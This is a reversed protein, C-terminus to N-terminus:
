ADAQDKDRQRAREVEDPKISERDDKAPVFRLERYV